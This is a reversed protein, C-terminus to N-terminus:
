VSYDDSTPTPSSHAATASSSPTNNIPSMHLMRKDVFTRLDKLTPRDLKDSAHKEWDDRLPKAFSAKVHYTLFESLSDGIFQTLADYGMLVQDTLTRLGDYSDAFSTPKLIKNVLIPAVIQPRGFRQRLRCLLDDLPADDKPYSRVVEKAEPSQLADMLLCRVDLHSFGSARTRIATSFLTEFHRWHTPDGDFKPLEVTIPAARPAPRSPADVTTTARPPSDAATIDTQVATVGERLPKVIARVYDDDMYPSAKRALASVAKKFDKFAEQYHHKSPEKITLLPSLMLLSCTKLRTM